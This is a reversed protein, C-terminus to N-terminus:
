VFQKGHRVEATEDNSGSCITSTALITRDKLDEVAESFHSIIQLVGPHQKEILKRKDKNSLKSIDRIASVRSTTEKETPSKGKSNGDDGEDDSLLFDEEAMDEYRAAQVEKAAEEELYADEEDQGLELDATDGHYYASKKKGWGRIDDMDGEEDDDESSSSLEQQAKHLTNLQDHDSDSEEDDEDDDESSDGGAGLDMVAEEEDQDSDDENANGGDLKLLEEDKENHYQDVKDYMSDDNQQKSVGKGQRAEAAKKYLSKDGTKATKRRKGM